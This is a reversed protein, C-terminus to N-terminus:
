QYVKIKVPKDTSKITNPITAADTDATKYKWEATFLLIIGKRINARIPTIRYAIKM